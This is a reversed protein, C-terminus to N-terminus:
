GSTLDIRHTNKKYLPCFDFATQIPCEKRYELWFNRTLASASRQQNGLYSARSTQSMSGRLLMLLIGYVKHRESIQIWSLLLDAHFEKRSDNDM